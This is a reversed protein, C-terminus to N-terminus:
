KWKKRLKDKFLSGGPSAFPRNVNSGSKNLVDSVFTTCNNRLVNYSGYTNGINIKTTSGTITENIVNGNSDKEQEVDNRSSILNGEQIMGEILSSVTEDTIDTIIFSIMDTEGSKDTLYKEAATGTYRNLIGKGRVTHGKSYQRGGLSFPGYSYITM